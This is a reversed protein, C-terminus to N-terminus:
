GRCEGEKRQGLDFVLIASTTTEIKRRLKMRGTYQAGYGRWIVNSGIGEVLAAM